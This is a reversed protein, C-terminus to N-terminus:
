ESLDVFPCRYRIADFNQSSMGPWTFVIEDGVVADMGPYFPDSKPPVVWNSVELVEASASLVCLLLAFLSRM